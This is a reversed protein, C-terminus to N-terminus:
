GAFWQNFVVLEARFVGSCPRVCLFGLPRRMALGNVTHLKGSMRFIARKPM